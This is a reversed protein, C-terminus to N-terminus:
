RQLHKLYGLDELILIMGTIDESTSFVLRFESSGMFISNGYEPNRISINLLARDAREMFTQPYNLLIPALNISENNEPITDLKSSFFFRWPKGNRAKKERILKEAILDMTKSFEPSHCYDEVFSRSLLFKCNYTSCTISYDFGDGENHTVSCSDSGCLPCVKLYEM